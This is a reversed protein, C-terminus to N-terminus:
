LVVIYPVAIVMPPVSVNRLLGSSYSPPLSSSTTPSTTTPTIYSPNISVVVLVVVVGVELVLFPLIQYM